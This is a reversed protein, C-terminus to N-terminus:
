LNVYEVDNESEQPYVPMIPQGNPIGGGLMGSMLQGKIIDEQVKAMAINNAEEPTKGTMIADNYAKGYSGSIGMAIKQEMTANPNQALWEANLMQPTKGVIGTRANINDTQANTYGTQANTKNRSAVDNLYDEMALDGATVNWGNSRMLNAKQELAIVDQVPLTSKYAEFGKKLENDFESRILSRNFDRQKQAENQQAKQFQLKSDYGFNVGAMNIDHAQKSGLVELEKQKDANVKQQYLTAQQEPTMKGLYNIAINPNYGLDNIMYDLLQAQGSLKPKTDKFEYGELGLSEAYKSVSEPTAGTKAFAQLQEAPTKSTKDFAGYQAKLGLMREMKDFEDKRAQADAEIKAKTLSMEHQRNIANQAEERKRQEEQERQRIEEQQQKYLNDATKGAGIVGYGFAEAPNGGAMAVAGGAALGGLLTKFGNSSLFSSVPNSAASNNMINDVASTPKPGQINGTLGINEIRGISNMNVM